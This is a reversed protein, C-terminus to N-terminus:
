NGRESPILSVSGVSPPSLIEGAELGQLFAEFMELRSPERCM